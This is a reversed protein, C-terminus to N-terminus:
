SGGVSAGQVDPQPVPRPDGREANRVGPLGGDAAESPEAAEDALLEERPKGLIRCIANYLKVGPQANCLEVNYITNRSRIIGQKALAAVLEGVTLDAAERAARIKRGDARTAQM